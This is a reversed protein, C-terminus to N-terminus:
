HCICPDINMDLLKNFLKAPNTTNFASSFDMFLIHAYTNASKLHNLIHHIALNVTDEVSRNARYAFQYPDMLPTTVIKLHKLIIREFSKMVASTLDILRYDNLCSITKTKPVPIIVSETFCMPLSSQCLTTSFINTFVRALEAACHHLISDPESLLFFHLLAQIITNVASSFDLFFTM